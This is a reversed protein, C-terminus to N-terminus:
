KKGRARRRRAKRQRRGRAASPGQEGRGPSGRRGARPPSQSLTAASPPSSSSSLAHSPSPCRRAQAARLGSKRQRLRPRAPASGESPGAGLSAAHARAMRLRKLPSGLAESAYQTLRAVTAGVRPRQPPLPPPQARVARRTARARAATERLRVSPPPSATPGRPAVSTTAPPRALVHGAAGDRRRSSSPMVAGGGSVSYGESACALAAAAAVLHLDPAHAALLARGTEGTWGKLARAAAADVEGPGDSQRAAQMLLRQWAPAHSGRAVLHERQLSPDRRATRLLRVDEGGVRAGPPSARGCRQMLASCLRRPQQCLWAARPCRSRPTERAAAATRPRPTHGRSGAGASGGRPTTAWGDPRPSALPSGGASHGFQLRRPQMGVSATRRLSRPAPGTGAALPPAPGAGRSSSRHLALMRNPRPRPPEATSPHEGDGRSARQARPTPSDAAPSPLVLHGTRPTADEAVARGRWAAQRLLSVGRRLADAAASLAAATTARTSATVCLWLFAADYLPVVTSARALSMDSFHDGVVAMVDVSTVGLAWAAVPLAFAACLAVAIAVLIAGLPPSGAGGASVGAGDGSSPGARASPSAPLPAPALPLLLLWRVAQWGRLDVWRRLQAVRAWVGAGAAAMFLVLLAADVGTAVVRATDPSAGLVATYVPRFDLVCAEGWARSRTGHGGQGAVSEGGAASVEATARLLWAPLSAAITGGLFATARLVARGVLLATLAACIPVSLAFAVPLSLPAPDSVCWLPLVAVGERQVPPLAALTWAGTRPRWARKAEVRLADVGEAERAVAARDRRAAATAEAWQMRWQLTRVRSLADGPRPSCLPDEPLPSPSPATRALELLREGRLRLRTIASLLTLERSPCAALSHSHPSPPTAIGVLATAPACWRLEGHLRRRLVPVRLAYAARNVELLGTQTPSPM